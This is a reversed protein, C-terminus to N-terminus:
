RESTAADGGGMGGRRRQAEAGRRSNEGDPAATGEAIGWYAKRVPELMLIVSALSKHAGENQRPAIPAEYFSNITKLERILHLNFLRTNKM